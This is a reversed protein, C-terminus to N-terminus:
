YNISKGNSTKDDDMIMMALCSLHHHKKGDDEVTESAELNTNKKGVQKISIFNLHHMQEFIEENYNYM